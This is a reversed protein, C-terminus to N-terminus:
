LVTIQLFSDLLKVIFVMTWNWLVAIKIELKYHSSGAAPAGRSPQQNSAILSSQKFWLGKEMEALNKHWEEQSKQLKTGKCEVDEKAWLWPSNEMKDEGMWLTSKYASTLYCLDSYAASVPLHKSSQFWSGHHKAVLFMLPNM